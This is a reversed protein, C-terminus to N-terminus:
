YVYKFENPIVIEIITGCSSPNADSKDKIEFELKYKNWSNYLNFTESITKMGTGKRGNNKKLSKNYGIGNDEIVVRTYISDQSVKIKIEGQGTINEIGHKIANEVFNQLSLKVLIISTDVSPDLDISYDFREGHNIRNLECYERVFDLEEELTRTLENNNWHVRLLQSFRVIIEYIGVQKLRLAFTGTTTLTNFIFHPDLQALQAQMMLKHQQYQKQQKEVKNRFIRRTVIYIVAGLVSILVLYFWITQWFAPEITFSYYTKLINESEEGNAAKVHFTYTGPPLNAYIAEKSNGYPSWTKEYGELYYSYTVPNSFYAGSFQFRIKNENHSLEHTSTDRSLWFADNMISMSSICPEVSVNKFSLYRPDIQILRDNVPIWVMGNKDECFGNQACEYGSFGNNANYFKIVTKNKNYFAKLDLAALGSITGILLISDGVEHLATIVKLDLAPHEIKKFTKNNYLYLGDEGGFWLNHHKDHVIAYAGYNYLKTSIKTLVNDKLEYTYKRSTFWFKGSVDKEIALIVRVGDDPKNHFVIKGKNNEILIGDQHGYITNQTVTDYYLSFVNAIGELDKIIFHDDKKKIVGKISSGWIITGDPMRLKSMIFGLSNPSIRSSINKFYKGDFQYMKGDTSGIWSINNDTIIQPNIAKIGYDTFVIHHFAREALKYLGNETGFWTNNEKDQLVNGADALYFIEKLKGSFDFEKLCDINKLARLYLGNSSIKFLLIENTEIIKSLKGLYYKYIGNGSNIYLTDGMSQLRGYLIEFHKSIFNYHQDFYGLETKNEINQKLVWITDNAYSISGFNWDKKCLVRYKGGLFSLLTFKKAIGKCKFTILLSDNMRVISQYNEYKDSIPYAMLNDGEVSTIGGFNSCLLIEGNKMEFIFSIDGPLIGNKLSYIQFNEGDYKVAGFKTGIWINGKSDQFLSTIQNQPLDSNETNYITYRYSQAIIHNSCLLLFVIIANKM